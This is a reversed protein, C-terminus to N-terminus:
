RGFRGGLWDEARAEAADEAAAAWFRALAADLAGEALKDAREHAERYAPHVISCRAAVDPLTAHDWTWEVGTRIAEGEELDLRYTAVLSWDALGDPYREVMAVRVADNEDDDCVWVEIPWVTTADPEFALAEDILACEEACERRLDPSAGAREQWYFWLNRLKGYDIGLYPNAASM